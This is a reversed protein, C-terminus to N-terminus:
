KIRKREMSALFSDIKKYIILIIEKVGLLCNNRKFFLHHLSMLFGMQATYFFHM